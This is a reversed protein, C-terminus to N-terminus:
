AIIIVDVIVYSSPDVIIVKEDVLFYRYGEYQPVIVVIDQPIPYFRVDRPVTVGVNLSIDIDRAPEVRHRQFATKVKSKQEQSVNVSKESDGGNGAQGGDAKKDSSADDNMKRNGERDRTRDSNDSRDGRNREGRDANDKNQGPAEDRASDGLEKTRGPAEDRASTGPEKMQGPARDRASSDSNTGSNSGAAPPNGGQQGAAGGGGGQQAFAASSSALLAVLSVAIINKM